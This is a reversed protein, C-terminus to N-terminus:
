PEISSLQRKVSLLAALWGLISSTFLLLLIQRISLGTIPFNMKYESLFPTILVSLSWIFCTVFVVAFIGGALGYGLGSYLFPRLIFADPAGVLKLIQIEEHRTNIVLRLSIGIILIVALALLLMLAHGVRAAVHVISNLRKVWEADLKVLDVQALSQLQGALAELKASSDITLAPIVEIVAPLPNEPLYRMIDQMGEQQSLEKLGEQSSKLTAQGVGHTARVKELLDNQNAASSDTKLYISIHGGQKWNTTLESFNDTFVWFLAPLALAVALVLVTMLTFLPKKCLFIGSQTIAQVHYALLSKTQNLM